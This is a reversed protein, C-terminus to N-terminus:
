SARIKALEFNNTLNSELRCGGGNLACPSAVPCGFFVRGLPRGSERQLGVDSHSKASDSKDLHLSARREQLSVPATVQCSRSKESGSTVDDFSLRRNSPLDLSISKISKVAPHESLLIKNLLDIWFSSCSKPFYSRSQM